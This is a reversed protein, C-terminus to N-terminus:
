LRGNPHGTPAWLCARNIHDCATLRGKTTSDTPPSSPANVSHEATHTDVIPHENKDIGTENEQEDRRRIRSENTNMPRKTIAENAPASALGGALARVDNRMCM